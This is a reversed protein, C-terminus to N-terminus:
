AIQHWTATAGSKKCFWLRGTKDAYLDGRVGGKPHTSGTGPQLQIQAAGGSFVGGRAKTSAGRVGPGGTSTGLVGAGAGSNASNVAPKTSDATASLAVGTAGQGTAVVATAGSASVGFGGSAAVGVSAGARLKELVSTLPTGLSAYCSQPKGNYARGTM